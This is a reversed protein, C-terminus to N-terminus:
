SAAGSLHRALRLALAVITLTPNAAGQHPFLSGSAVYLNDLGFVRADRDCVGVDPSAGMATAGSPHAAFGLEGRSWGDWHRRAGLAGAIDAQLHHLEQPGARDWETPVLTVRAVPDGFGDTQTADLALVGGDGSLEHIAYGIASQRLGRRLDSLMLRDGAVALDQMMHGPVRDIESPMPLLNISYTGRRDRGATTRFHECNMSPFALGRGIPKDLEVWFFTM